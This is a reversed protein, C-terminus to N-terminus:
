QLQNASQSVTLVTIPLNAGTLTANINDPFAVPRGLGLPEKSYLFGCLLVQFKKHSSKDASCRSEM